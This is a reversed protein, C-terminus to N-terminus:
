LITREIVWWGGILAILLSAPISVRARYWPRHRFWAGLALFAMAIVALQGLEVGVNFGILAPVFQAEPLGIQSLMTAFGLGHLLGFGFIIFPRWVHLRTSFLNEIAVFCISAAILPEVISSPASILGLSALALTLTHALTFASIQWILPGLHISFFFLGLVFLIHDLGMPLIHEFGIPVYSAFAQLGSQASGGALLFAPSLAGGRLTATFPEDTQTNQRLILTGYPQAWGIQASTAAPPLSTRLIVTTQRPLTIDGADPIVRATFTLPAPQGDILVTINDTLQPLFDIFKPGLEAPEMARLADYTNTNPDSGTDELGDLNVGAMMAELNLDFTLTMTGESSRLNLISPYVEHASSLTTLLMLWLTSMAARLTLTSFHPFMM